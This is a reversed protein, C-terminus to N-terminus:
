KIIGVKIKGFRLSAGCKVGYKNYNIDYYDSVYFKANIIKLHIFEKWSNQYWKKNINSYVNRFCTGSFTGSLDGEKIIEVPTKNPSFDM